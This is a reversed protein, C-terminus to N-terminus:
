RLLAEELMIKLRDRLKNAETESAELKALLEEPDGHDEEVFHPNKIDLNYNRAKVDAISVKWAVENEVRKAWWDICPQLHELRIPRTM